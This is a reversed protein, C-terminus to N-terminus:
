GPFFDWTRVIDLMDTDQKMADPLPSFPAANKVIQLALTDLAPSGSSKEIVINKLEGKANISVRLSLRGKLEPHTALAAKYATTGKSEILTRWATLYDADRSEFQTDSLTRRKLKQTKTLHDPTYHIVSSQTDSAVPTIDMQESIHFPKLSINLHSQEVPKEQTVTWINTILMGASFLIIMHIAASFVWSVYTSVEAERVAYDNM